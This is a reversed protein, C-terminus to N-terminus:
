SHLMHEATKAPQQQRFYQQVHTLIINESSSLCMLESLAKCGEFQLILGLPRQQNCLFAACLPLCWRPVQQWHLRQEQTVAAAAVWVEVPLRNQLQLVLMRVEFLQLSQLSAVLM